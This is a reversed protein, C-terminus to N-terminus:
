IKKALSGIYILLILFLLPYAFSVLAFFSRFGWFSLFVSLGLLGVAVAQKNFTYYIIGDFFVLFLAYIIGYALMGWYGKARYAEGVVSYTLSNTGMELPGDKIFDAQYVLDQAGSLMPKKPWIARPVPNVLTAIFDNFGEYNYKKPYGKVLLCLLYMNNDRESQTPDFTTVSKMNAIRAAKEPNSLVDLLNGRFRVQLEMIGILGILVAIAAVWFRVGKHWNYYFFFFLVPAAVAMMNGRSGSLFFLFVVILGLSLSFLPVLGYKYRATIFAVSGFLPTLQWFWAVPLLLSGQNGEYEQILLGGSSGGGSRGASIAKWLEDASGYYYYFVILPLSFAIFTLWAYLKLSPKLQRLFSFANISNNTVSKWSVLYLLNVTLMFLSVWLTATIREGPSNYEFADYGPLMAELHLFWVPAINFASICSFILLFKKNYLAYAVPAFSLLIALFSCAVAIDNSKYFFLSAILFILLGTANCRLCFAALRKLHQLSEREGRERQPIKKIAPNM